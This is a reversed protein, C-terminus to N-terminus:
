CFFFIKSVSAQPYTILFFIFCIKKNKADQFDSFFPTPDLTLDPAPDASGSGCWFTVSGWCQYRGEGREHLTWKQINGRKALIILLTVTGCQMLKASEYTTTETDTGNRTNIVQRQVAGLSTM